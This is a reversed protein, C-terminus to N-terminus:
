DKPKFRDLISALAPSDVLHIDQQPYPFHVDNEKFLNWMLMRVESSVNVVGNQPDEIWFRLEFDVSSDGFDMMRCQPAPNEVVRKVQKAAEVALEAARELDSDYAIGFGVKLRVLRNSHSWNIVPQTIMDENPILFETGDRTIISTYRTALKNIWGYTGQVEIVDGPKISRDLLLIFGSFLNSVVKQLGFGVGLGIAGGFVAFVTLDLGASGLGVLIALFVLAFKLIKAILVRASPNLTSVQGIRQELLRAVLLALWVFVVLSLIGTLVGLMSVRNDEGLPIAAQDLAAMTDDLIGVINLAALTWAIVAIFTSLGKNSLPATALNIVLWASLLSVAVSLVYHDLELTSVILLLLLQLAWWITPMALRAAVDCLKKVLPKTLSLNELWTRLPRAAFRALLFILGIALLQGLTGYTLVNEQLWAVAQLATEELNDIEESLSM